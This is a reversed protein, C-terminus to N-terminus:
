QVRYGIDRRYYCDQFEIHSVAEYAQELAEAFTAGTGTVSLVRGGSSVLSQNQAQTGAHFVVAGTAAAAELGIIVQGKIYQGPYGGAAMVVCASFGPKWTLEVEALRQQTCALLLQDLPTDLLPLIAEIEPDGFRCNFEIVKPNGEPTIMLGAYLVGRYDIQRAQLEQLVPILIEQDIREMLAPTVWPVPAYAGMGGTNPGTDGEGIPKHDQAPLFSRLTCGDTLALVSVEQGTLYEEILVQSGASGFKGQLVEELAIWAAELTMAVTVGKGAALGDAKIVIPVGQGQVYARAQDLDSFTQSQATPVGAAMMLTKAWTKSSEIQAGAQSPGFVAIGQSTLVDTIGMALPMEPGVVVLAIEKELAFRAIAAFDTEVLPVNQGNILAATGGNGPACFVQSVSPSQLLKWALAHERGGSGIVLIKM